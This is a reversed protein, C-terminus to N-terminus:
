LMGECLFLGEALTVKGRDQAKLLLFCKPADHVFLSQCHLGLCSLDKSGIDEEGFNLHGQGGQLHECLITQPLPPSTSILRQYLVVTCHLEM